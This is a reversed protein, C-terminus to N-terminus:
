GEKGRRAVQEEVQDRLILYQRRADFLRGSPLGIPRRSACRAASRQDPGAATAGPESHPHAGSSSEGRGIRAEDILHSVGFNPVGEPCDDDGGQTPKERAPEMARALPRSRAILSSERTSV